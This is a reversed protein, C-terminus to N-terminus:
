VSKDMAEVSKESNILYFINLVLICLAIFAILNVFLIGVRLTDLSSVLSMLGPMIISGIGAATSLIGMATGSFDSLVTSSLSLLLPFIGSCGLGLLLCFVISINSDSILWFFFLSVTFLILLSLLLWTTLIYKSLWGVILRGIGMGTSFLALCLGSVIISLYSVEQLYSVLWYYIGNQAGIGLIGLVFLVALVNKSLIKKLGRISKLQYRSVEKDGSLLLVLFIVIEIGGVFRYVM